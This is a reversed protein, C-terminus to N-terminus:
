RYCDESRGGGDGVIGALGVELATAAAGRRGRRGLSRTRRGFWAPAFGQRSIMDETSLVDEWREDRM